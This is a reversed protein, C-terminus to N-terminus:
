LKGALYKGNNLQFFCTELSYLTAATRRQCYATCTINNVTIFIENIINSSVSAPTCHGTHSNETTGQHM